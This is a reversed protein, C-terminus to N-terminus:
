EEPWYSIAGNCFTNFPLNLIPSVMSTYNGDLSIDTCTHSTNILIHTSNDSTNYAVSPITLNEKSCFLYIRDEIPNFNFIKAGKKTSCMSFFFNDPEFSAYINNGDKGLLHAGKDLIIDKEGIDSEICNPMKSHSHESSFFYYVSTVLTFPLIIYSAKKQFRIITATTICSVGLWGVVIQTLSVATPIGLCCLM